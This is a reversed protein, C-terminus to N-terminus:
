RSKMESKSIFYLIGNLQQQKIKGKQKCFAIYAMTESIITRIIDTNLERQFLEKGIQYATKPERECIQLLTELRYERHKILEKIRNQGNRFPAGHAPLIYEIYKEQLSQLSDMYQQLPNEDELFQYSMYPTIEPLVHDGAILVGNQNNHLSIHDRSHGPTSLVKYIFNGLKFTMGPKLEQYKSVHPFAYEHFKEVYNEMQEVTEVPVGSLILYQKMAYFSEKTWLTRIMRDSESSMFVEAGTWQQLEGLFGYHDVHYHTLIIKRIDSPKM